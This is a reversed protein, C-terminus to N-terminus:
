RCVDIILKQKEFAEKYLTYNTLSRRVEETLSGRAVLDIAPDDVSNINCGSPVVIVKSSCGSIISLLCFAILPMVIQKM